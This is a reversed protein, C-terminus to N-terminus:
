RYFKSILFYIKNILADPFKSVDITKRSDGYLIYNADENYLKILKMM